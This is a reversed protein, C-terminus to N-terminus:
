ETGQANQVLLQCDAQAQRAIERLAEADDTTSDLIASLASQCRIGIDLALPVRALKGPLDFAVVADLKTQTESRQQRLDETISRIEDTTSQVNETATHLKGFLRM